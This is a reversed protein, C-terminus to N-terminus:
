RLVRGLGLTVTGFGGHGLAVCLIGLMGKSRAFCWCWASLNLDVCRLSVRSMLVM